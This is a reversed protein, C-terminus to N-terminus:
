IWLYISNVVNVGINFSARQSEINLVSQYSSGECEQHLSM